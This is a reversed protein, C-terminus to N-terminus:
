AERFITSDASKLLLRWTDLESVGQRLRGALQLLEAITISDVCTEALNFKADNEHANMWIEVGFERIKM